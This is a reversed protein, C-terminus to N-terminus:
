YIEYAQIDCLSQQGFRHFSPAGFFVTYTILETRSLAQTTVQMVVGFTEDGGGRLAFFLDTNRCDNAVLLDGAPVIIEYELVRDVALGFINSLPSSPLVVNLLPVHIILGTVGTRYIDRELVSQRM